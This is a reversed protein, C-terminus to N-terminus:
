VSQERIPQV